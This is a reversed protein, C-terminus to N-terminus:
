KKVTEWLGLKNGESDFFDCFRVAGGGETRPDSVTIGKARLAAVSSDLSDGQFYVQAGHGINGGVRDPHLDLRFKLGEHWLMAYHPAYNSSISFGLKDAYWKVARDVDTVYLMVHSFKSLM